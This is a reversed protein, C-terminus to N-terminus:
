VALGSNREDVEVESDTTDDDIEDADNDLGVSEDETDKVQENHTITRVLKFKSELTASTLQKPRLQLGVELRKFSQEASM